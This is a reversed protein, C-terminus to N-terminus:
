LPRFRWKADAPVTTTIEYENQTTKQCMVNWGRKLNMNFIMTGIEGQSSGTISVDGDAYVLAGVLNEGSALYFIGVRNDSKYAYLNGSGIKVNANSVTIGDPVDGAISQLYQSSVNAPLTMTFGGNKYEASALVADDDSDPYLKVVDIADNYSNGNEVVATITNNVIIGNDSNEEEDKSCSGLAVVTFLCVFAMKLFNSKKM